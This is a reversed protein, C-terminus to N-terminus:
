VFRDGGEHPWSVRNPPQRDAAEFAAAAQLIGRENWPRSVIQMGLPLGDPTFGCPLSLAPLGTLNFPATFRTLQGAWTLADATARPPAAAPTTPTILIDYGDFFREFERRLQTQLRRADVYDLVSFAAGTELRQRVDEGFGEPQAALRERHVRAADALLMRGNAWRATRAASFDVPTVLAGLDKFVEVAAEVGALVQEDAKTFHEGVAYAVRWGRIDEGLGARYDAIPGPVAAPDEADYGAIVGLLLAVDGVTRAMPGAHDLNWSLPLVGRLSVLGFTPKLGVVGCFSSPIRISGGTDTGLAGLCLRAALAAGSGSSSGGPLHTRAWPNNCDPFHPNQGTVGIAWEHLHLKGLLVAGARYLRTVAAADEAPLHDKLLPSGGTTPIGRTFFLDKVAIPLGHLPGIPEGAALVRDAEKAQQRALASTVKLYSNIGPDHTKIRELHATTIEQATIERRAVLERAESLTLQTLDM